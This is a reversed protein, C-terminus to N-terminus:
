CFPGSAAGDVTPLPVRSVTGPQVIMHNHHDVVALGRFAPMFVAVMARVAQIIIQSVVLHQKVANLIGM